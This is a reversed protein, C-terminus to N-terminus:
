NLHSCAMLTKFKVPEENREFVGLSIIKKSM